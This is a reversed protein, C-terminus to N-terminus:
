AEEDDGTPQEEVEEEPVPSPANVAAAAVGGRGRSGGRGGRGGRGAARAERAETSADPYVWAETMRVLVERFPDQDIMGERGRDLIWDAQVRLTQGQRGHYARCALVGNFPPLRGRRDSSVRMLSGDAGVTVPLLLLGEGPVRDFVDRLQRLFGAAEATNPLLAVSGIPWDRQELLIVYRADEPAASAHPPNQAEGGAVSGVSGVVSGGRASGGGRGGRDVGVMGGGRGGGSGRPRGPGRRMGAWGAVPQVGRVIREPDVLGPFHVATSRLVERGVMRLTMHGAGSAPALAMAFHADPYLAGLAPLFRRPVEMVRMMREAAFPRLQHARWPAFPMAPDSDFVPLAERETATIPRADLPAPARLLAALTTPGTGSASTDAANNNNSRAALGAAGPTDVVPGFGAATGPINNNDNNNNNSSPVFDAAAGSSRSGEPVFGAEIFDNAPVVARTNIPAGHGSGFGPGAGVGLLGASVGPGFDLGAPGADFASDFGVPAGFGGLSGFRAGFTDTPDGGSTNGVIPGFNNATARPSPVASPVQGSQTLAPELGPVPVWFRAAPNVEPNWEQGSPVLPPRPMDDHGEDEDNGVFPMDNFNDFDDREGAVSRTLQAGERAAAGQAIGPSPLSGQPCLQELADDVGQQQGGYLAQLAPDIVGQIADAAPAPAAPGLSSDPGPAVPAAGAAVSEEEGLLPFCLSPDGLPDNNNMNKNKAVNNHCASPSSSPLTASKDTRRFTPSSSVSLTQDRPPSSFSSPGLVRTTPPNNDDTDIGPAQRPNDNVRARARFSTPGAVTPGSSPAAPLQSSAPGAQSRIFSAYPNGADFARSRVFPSSQGFETATGSSQQSTHGRLPKNVGEPAVMRGQAVTGQSKQGDGGQVGSLNPLGHYTTPAAPNNSQTVHERNADMDGRMDDVGGHQGDGADDVLSNCSAVSGSRVKEDDDESPTRTATTPLTSDWAAPGSPTADPFLRRRIPRGSTPLTETATDDGRQAAGQRQGTQLSGTATVAMRAPTPTGPVSGPQEDSAEIVDDITADDSGSSVVSGDATASTATRSSDDADITPNSPTSLSNNGEMTASSATQSLSDGNVTASSATSSSDDADM